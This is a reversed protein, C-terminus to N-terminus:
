ALARSCILFRQRAEEECTGALLNNYYTRGEEMSDKFIMPRKPGFKHGKNFWAMGCEDSPLNMVRTCLYEKLTTAFWRHGGVGM